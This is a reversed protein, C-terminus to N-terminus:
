SSPEQDIIDRLAAYQVDDMTKQEQQPRFLSICDMTSRMLNSCPRLSFRPLDCNQILDIAVVTIAIAAASYGNILANRSLITMGTAMPIALSICGLFADHRSHASRCLAAVFNTMALTVALLHPARSGTLVGFCYGLGGMLTSAMLLETSDGTTQNAYYGFCGVAVGLATAVVPSSSLNVM